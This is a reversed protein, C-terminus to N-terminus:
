NNILLSTLSNSFIKHATLDSGYQSFHDTDFLYPTHNVNLGPVGHYNYIDIYYEPFKIKLINNLIAGERILYREKVDINYQIERALIIHFPITYSETQGVLIVKIGKRSIFTITKKLNDIMGDLNNYGKLWNATLIIGDIKKHNQVLFDKYIYNMIDTCQTVGQSSLLPLCGSATSQMLNINRTILLDHLSKSLEAAHSDGLLLFNKKGNEIHLCLGKNLYKVGGPVIYCKGESFQIRKEEVPPAYAAMELSEKKYIIKNLPIKTFLFICTLAVSMSAILPMSKVQVIEIFQYTLTALGISVLILLLNYLYTSEMGMYQGIVYVPWHWLYLSYSINGLFQVVPNKIIKFDHIGAGIILSTASVPLWTYVGPWGLDSKLLFFSLALLLYGIYAFSKRTFIKINKGEVLFVLGGIIFEWSRTPLLYFSAVANVKTRWVSFCFILVISIIFIVLLVIKNKVCKHLISLAIPYLLYFQFEVSLSWTHLFINSSSLPDFYGLHKLYWFNSCFLLSSFANASQLKLENPFYMFFGVIAISSTVFLLAPVIREVRKLLFQTYSFSKKELGNVIIKSMLYGSIVFFVDVGSFGGYCFPLKFHYLVVGLIAIARLANIDYRFGEKVNSM